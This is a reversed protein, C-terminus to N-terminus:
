LVDLLSQRLPSVFQIIFAYIRTFLACSEDSCKVSAFVFDIGWCVYVHGGM